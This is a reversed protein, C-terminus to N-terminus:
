KRGNISFAAHAYLFHLFSAPTRAACNIINMIRFSFFSCTTSGREGGPISCRPSNHIDRISGMNNEALFPTGIDSSSASGPTHDASPTEAIRPVSGISPTPPGSPTQTTSGLTPTDPVSPSTADGTRDSLLQQEESEGDAPSVM